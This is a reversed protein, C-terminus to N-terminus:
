RALKKLRKRIEGAEFENENQDFIKMAKKYCSRASDLNNGKVFLRGAKEYSTAAEWAYEEMDSLVEGRNKYESAAELPRDSKEFTRAITGYQQAAEWYYEAEAYQKRAMRYRDIGEGIEGHNMLDRGAMRNKEAAEWYYGHESLRNAQEELKKHEPKMENEYANGLYEAIDNICEEWKPEEAVYKASEISRDFFVGTDITVYKGTDDRIREVVPIICTIIGSKFLANAYGLEHMVTPNSISNRTLFALFWKCEEINGIIKQPIDAGIKKQQTSIVPDIKQKYKRALLLEIKEVFGIDKSSYSIFMNIAM